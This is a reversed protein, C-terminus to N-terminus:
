RYYQQPYTPRQRPYYNYGPARSNTQAPAAQQEPPPAQQTVLPVANSVAPEPAPKVTAAPEPEPTLPAAATQGPASTEPPLTTAAPALAQQSGAPAVAPDAVTEEVMRVPPEITDPGHEVTAPAEVADISTVTPGAPGSMLTASDNTPESMASAPQATRDTAPEPIATLPATVTSEPAVATANESSIDTADGGPWFYYGLLLAALVMGAALATPFPATQKTPPPPAPQAPTTTEAAGASESALGASDISPEPMAPAPKATSGAAPDPIATLPAADTVPASLDADIPAPEPEVPQETSFEFLGENDVPMGDAIKILSDDDLPEEATQKRTRALIM